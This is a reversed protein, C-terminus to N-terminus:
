DRKKNGNRKVLSVVDHTHMLTLKLSPSNVVQRLYKIAKTVAEELSSGFGYVEYCFDYRKMKKAKIQKVPRKM